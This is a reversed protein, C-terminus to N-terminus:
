FSLGLGAGAGNRMPQFGVSSLRPGPAAGSPAIEVDATTVRHSGWYGLFAIGTVFAVGGLTPWIADNAGQCTVDSSSPCAYELSWLTAAVLPGIVTLLIGPILFRDGSSVLHVTGALPPVDM